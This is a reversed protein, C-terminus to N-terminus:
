FKLGGERAGEAVAKVRGHYKYYKRDFVIESVKKDLALKAIAQGVQQGLEIANKSKLKSSDAAALIKGDRNILQAYIHKGSRHVMLRPRTGTGQLLSRARTRGARAQRRNITHKTQNM